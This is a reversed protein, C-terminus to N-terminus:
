YQGITGAQRARRDMWGFVLFGVALWFVGFGALAALDPAVARLDAGGLTVMRMAEIMYTQPLWGAVLQMWEPLLLVPFTIGCFIMVVGRVLFVFASAEKATIVLSAFTFGMGYISPICLLIVLLALLPNGQFQVGFLLSFEIYSIGLFLIMEILQSASSGLLFSFRWTPTLWNSELTGRLQEERLSTGVEWLVINQWMWVTTGVVIYGIYDQIGTAQVFAALGRGDPGALARAGLIYVAPFIVPWILVAAVWTPYRRFITWARTFVAWQARLKAPFDDRALSPVPAYPELQVAM